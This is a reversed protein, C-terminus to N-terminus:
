VAALAKQWICAKLESSVPPPGPHLSKTPTTPKPSDSVLTSRSQPKKGCKPPAERVYPPTMSCWSATKYLSTLCCTLHHLQKGENPQKSRPGPNNEAFLPLNPGFINCIQPPVERSPVWARPQWREAKPQFVFIPWGVCWRTEVIALTSHPGFRQLPAIALIVLQFAENQHKEEKNNNNDNIIININSLKLPFPHLLIYPREALPPPPPCVPQTLACLAVKEHFRSNQNFTPM